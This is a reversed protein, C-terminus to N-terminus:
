EDMHRTERPGTSVGVVSYKECARKYARRILRQAIVVSLAGAALVGLWRVLTRM